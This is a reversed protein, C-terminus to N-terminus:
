NGQLNSAINTQKNVNKLRSCKIDIKNIDEGGDRGGGDGCEM